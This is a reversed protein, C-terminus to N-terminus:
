RIQHSAIDGKYPIKEEWTVALFSINLHGQFVFAYTSIANFTNAAGNNCWASTVQPHNPAFVRHIHLHWRDTQSRVFICKEPLSDSGSYTM